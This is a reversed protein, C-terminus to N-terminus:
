SELCQWSQEPKGVRILTFNQFNASIQRSFDPHSAFHSFHQFVNFQLVPEFYQSATM